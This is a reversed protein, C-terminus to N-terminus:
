VRRTALSHRSRGSITPISYGAMVLRREKAQADEITVFNPVLWQERGVIQRTANGKRPRQEVRARVSACQFKIAASMGVGTLTSAM